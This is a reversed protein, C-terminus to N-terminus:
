PLSWQCGTNAKGTRTALDAGCFGADDFARQAGLGDVQCQCNFTDGYAQCQVAYAHGGGEWDQHCRWGCMDRAYSLQTAPDFGCVGRDSFSKSAVDGACACSYYAAGREGSWRCSLSYTSGGLTWSPSCQRTQDTLMWGCGREAEVTRQTHDLTCFDSSDFSEVEIGGEYCRCYYDSSERECQVEYRQSTPSTFTWTDRCDGGTAPQPDPNTQSPSTSLTVGYPCYSACPGWGSSIADCSQQELCQACGTAVIDGVRGTAEVESQCVALCAGQPWQACAVMRACVRSCSAPVGADGPSASAQCSGLLCLSGGCDADVNCPSGAGPLFVANGGCGSALVAALLIFPRSSM